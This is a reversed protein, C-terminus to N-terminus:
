HYLVTAGLSVPPPSALLYTSLKENLLALQLKNNHIILYM